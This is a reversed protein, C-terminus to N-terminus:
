KKIATITAKNQKAKESKYSAIADQQIDLQLDIENTLLTQVKSRLISIEHTSVMDSQFIALVEVLEKIPASFSAGGQGSFLMMDVDENM